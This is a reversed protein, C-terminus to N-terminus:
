AEPDIIEFGYHRGVLEDFGGAGDVVDNANIAAFLVALGDGSAFM